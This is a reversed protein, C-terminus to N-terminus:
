NEITIIGNKLAYQVMEMTNNIGLKRFINKKHADVTRLSINLRHAIEKGILGKGCLEIIELEKHTFDTAPKPTKNKSVYINYLISTINRGFFESGNVITRIAEPLEEETANEKSIFGQIGIDLLQRIVEMSNEVSLVLIKMQPYEIKLRRAIEIGSIDPLTIDLLIIDASTTELLQFLTKGDGAEGAVCIDPCKELIGKEGLRFLVHDDVIIVQIM